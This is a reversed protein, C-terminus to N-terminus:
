LSVPVRYSENLEEERTSHLIGEYFNRQEEHANPSEKKEALIKNSNSCVRVMWLGESNKVCKDVDVFGAMSGLVM